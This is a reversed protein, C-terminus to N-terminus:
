RERPDAAAPAPETTTAPPTVPADGTPTPTAGPAPPAAPKAVCKTRTRRNTFKRQFGAKCRKVCRSRSRGGARLRVRELGKACRAGAATATSGEDAATGSRAPSAPVVVLLAALLGCLLLRRALASM